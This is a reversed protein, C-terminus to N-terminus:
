KRAPGSRLSTISPRTEILTQKVNEATPNEETVIFRTGAYVGEAGMAAVAKATGADTIGGAAMLPADIAARVAPFGSILSAYLIAKKHRKQSM